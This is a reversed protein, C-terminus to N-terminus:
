VSDLSERTMVRATKQSSGVTGVSTTIPLAVTSPLQVLGSAVRGLWTIAEDHRRVVDVPVPPRRGHLRYAVLDLVFTRIVEGVDVEGTVNVPVAYRTALYGNVEGEAGLRAQNVKNVDASGSGADDTLQVYTQTGLYTEIDNNTVYAM